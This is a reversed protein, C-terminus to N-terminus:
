RPEHWTQYSRGSPLTWTTRRTTPDHTAHVAGRTKLRHHHTCLAHLNCECTAGDVARPIIHDLECSPARRRCGPFACCRDRVQIYRRAGDGPQYNPTYTSRGLGLVTGHTPSGDRDDIVACRWTGTAALERALQAPIPGYGDLTAPMESHGTLVTLPVTVLIQATCRGTCRSPNVTTSTQTTADEAPGGALGAAAAALLDALVDVRTAAPVRQEPDAPDPGLHDDDPDGAHIPDDTAGARAAATLAALHAWMAEITEAGARVGFEAMGNELRRKWADRYRRAEEAQRATAEPDTEAIVRDLLRELQPRTTVEVVRREGEHTDLLAREVAAAVTLTHLTTKRTVLVAKATDLRGSVWLRYLDPMTTSLHRAAQLLDAAANRTLGTACALEAAATWLGEDQGPHLVTYRDRLEAGARSAVAGAWAALRHAAAAVEVVDDEDLADLRGLHADDALSPDPAPNGVLGMLAAMMQATPTVSRTTLRAMLEPVPVVGTGHGADLDENTRPTEAVPELGPVGEPIVRRAPDPLGRLRAIEARAAALDTASGARLARERALEGRLDLVERRLGEETLGLLATVTGTGTRHVRAGAAAGYRSSDQAVLEEPWVRPSEM